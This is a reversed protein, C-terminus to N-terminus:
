RRERGAECGSWRLSVGNLVRNFHAEWSPIQPREARTGTTNHRALALIKRAWLYRDAVSAYVPYDGLTEHFVALDNCILPVDLAAAELGPLGFGEAHSPFLVARSRRMLAAVAGDGLGSLEFLHCGALPSAELRQFLAESCWGRSGVICLAPMDAEPLDRAFADWLDLLLAHNKRPEITGLAVFLARGPEPVGPWATALAADDPAAPAVGLHAVLAPPVRGRRAFHREAAERSAQTSYIVCDARRAVLDLKRAFIEGTGPRTYPPHDLPITDHILVEIRAGAVGRVAAMVEPLLNSHGVNLYRVGTPLYRRLLRGLLPVPVTATALRRLDSLARRRAPSQRLHLRAIWDATGWRAAGALRARLAAMGSRDLLHVGPSGRVLGFLPEPRDLLADLYALEVRDIGTPTGRGVRSVLRTLDLLFATSPSHSMSGPM